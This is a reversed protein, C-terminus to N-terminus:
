LILTVMIGRHLYSIQGKFFLPYGKSNILNYIEPKLYYHYFFCKWINIYNELSNKSDKTYDYLDLAYDKLYKM